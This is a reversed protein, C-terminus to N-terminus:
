PWQCCCCCSPCRFSRPGGDWPHFHVVNSKQCDQFRNFHFCINVLFFMTIIMCTINVPFMFKILTIYTRWKLLQNQKEKWTKRVSRTFLYLFEKGYGKIISTMKNWCKIKLDKKSCFSFCYNVFRGGSEKPVFFIRSREMAHLFLFSKILCTNM